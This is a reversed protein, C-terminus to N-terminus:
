LQTDQPSFVNVKNASVVTMNDGVWSYLYELVAITAAERGTIGPNNKKARAMGSLITLAATERFRSKCALNMALTAIDDFEELRTTEAMRRVLVRSVHREALSFEDHSSEKTLQDWEVLVAERMRLLRRQDYYSKNLSYHRQWSAEYVAKNELLDKTLVKPHAQLQNGLLADVSGGEKLYQNYQEQNVEVEISGIVSRTGTVLIGNKGDRVMREVEHCLRLAAQNRIDVMISEYSELPMDTGDPPANWLRRAVLFTLLAVPVNHRGTLYCDAGSDSQIESCGMRFVSSYNSALWGEPYVSFYELVSADLLPSGTAMSARVMADTMEPLKTAHHLTEYPVEKSRTIAEYLATDTLINNTKSIKINVGADPAGEILEMHSNLRKALEDIWPAAVTRTFQLYDQMKKAIFDATEEMRASHESYGTTASPSDTLASMRGLDIYFGGETIKPNYDIATMAVLKSLLSGPKAVVAIGKADLEAALQYASESATYSLM